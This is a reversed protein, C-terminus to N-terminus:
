IYRVFEMYRKNVWYGSKAKCWTSGDSLKKEEVITIAVDTDIVQEIDFDVGPGKRCNLGDVTPKALYAKFEIPKEPKIAEPEKDKGKMYDKVMPYFEETFAKKTNGIGM